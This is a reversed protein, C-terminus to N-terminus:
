VKSLLARPSLDVRSQRRPRPGGRAWGREFVYLDMVYTFQIDGCCVKAQHAGVEIADKRDHGRRIRL